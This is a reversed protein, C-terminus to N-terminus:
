KNEFMSLLSEMAAKRITAVSEHSAVRIRVISSELLSATKSIPRYGTINSRKLIREKELKIRGRLDDAVSRSIFESIGQAYKVASVGTGLLVSQYHLDGQGITEMNDPDQVAKLRDIRRTGGSNFPFIDSVVKIKATSNGDDDKSGSVTYYRGQSNLWKSFKKKADNQQITMRDKSGKWLMDFRREKIAINRNRADVISSLPMYDDNIQFTTVRRIMQIAKPIVDSDSLNPNDKKVKLYIKDFLIHPDLLDRPEIKFKSDDLLKDMDEALSDLNYLDIIMQEIAGKIVSKTDGDGEPWLNHGGFDPSFEELRLLRSCTVYDALPIYPTVSALVRESYTEQSIKIGSSVYSSSKTNTIRYPLNRYM